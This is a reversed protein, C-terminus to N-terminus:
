FTVLVEGIVLSVDDTKDEQVVSTDVFKEECIDIVLCINGNELGGVFDTKYELGFFVGFDYTADAKGGPSEEWVLAFGESL